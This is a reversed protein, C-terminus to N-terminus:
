HVYLHNSNKYTANDTDIEKTKTGSMLRNRVINLRNTM